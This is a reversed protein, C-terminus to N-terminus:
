ICHAGASESPDFPMKENSQEVPNKALFADVEDETIYQPSFEYERYGGNEYICLKKLLRPNYESM